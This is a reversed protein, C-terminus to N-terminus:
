GVAEITPQAGAMADELVSAACIGRGRKSADKVIAKIGGVAWCNNREGGKGSVQSAQQRCEQGMVVVGRKGEDAAWALSVNRCRM